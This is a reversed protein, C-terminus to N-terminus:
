AEIESIKDDKEKLKSKVENNEATLAALKPLLDDKEQEFGSPTAEIQFIQDNDNMTFPSNDLNSRKQKVVMFTSTQNDAEDSNDSPKKRGSTEESDSEDWLNTM